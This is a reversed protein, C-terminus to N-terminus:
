EEMHYIRRLEPTYAGDPGYLVLSPLLRMGAAADKTAQVLVYRPEAEARTCVARVAKPELRHCKLCYLIEALRAARHVMYFRGGTSLLGAASQVVDELTCAIEYRSLRVAERERMAGADPRDYPPNACVVEAAGALARADKLDGEVIRVNSLGNLAVNRRALEAAEHQLEIGVMPARVRGSLLVPLIGTGTGLDILRERAEPDLGNTPEDLLLAEPQMAMVAALSVLKKEGGSLRHTLRGEFGELGLGRLTRLAREAAEDPSLGLNLPGFAVDELVTPCFLQDEAHQLVLGMRCRLARFDKEDKMPRGHFLVDGERPKALGMILRFLTTKGSGNPGYLGIRENPRLSLCADRLVERGGAYAFSLHDLEVISPESM